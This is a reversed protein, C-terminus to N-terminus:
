FDACQQKLHWLAGNSRSDSKKRLVRRWGFTRIWTLQGLVGSVAFTRVHTKVVIFIYSVFVRTGWHLSPILIFFFFFVGVASFLKMLLGHRNSATPNQRTKMLETSQRSEGKQGHKMSKREKNTMWRTNNQMCTNDKEKKQEMHDRWEDDTRVASAKTQYSSGKHGILLAEGRLEVGRM